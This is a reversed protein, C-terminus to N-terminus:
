STSACRGPSRTAGCGGVLDADGLLLGCQPGGLLKDGSATVLTAGARLAHAADPEDPLRPHRSLLGSGIDSM